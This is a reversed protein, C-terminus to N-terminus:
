LRDFVVRPSGNQVELTAPLGLLDIASRTSSHTTESAFVTVVDGKAPGQTIVFELSVGNRATDESANVVVVSYTGDPLSQM